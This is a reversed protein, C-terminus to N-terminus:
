IDIFQSESVSNLDNFDLTENKWIKECFVKFGLCNTEYAKEALDKYLGSLMIIDMLELYEYFHEIFIELFHLPFKAITEHKTFDLTELDTITTYKTSAYLNSLEWNEFNFPITEDLDLDMDM